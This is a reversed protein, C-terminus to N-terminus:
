GRRRSPRRSLGHSALLEAILIAAIPVTGVCLRGLLMAVPVLM